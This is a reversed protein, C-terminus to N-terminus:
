QNLFMRSIGPVGTLRDAFEPKLTGNYFGPFISKGGSTTTLLKNMGNKLAGYETDPHDKRFAERANQVLYKDSLGPHQDALYKKYEDVYNAEDLARQKDVYMGSLVKAAQDRPIQPSPIMNATEELAGLSKQDANKTAALRFFGGLKTAATVDGADGPDILYASPDVGISPAITRVLDNARNIMANRWPSLPGSSIAGNAPIKELENTLQNLTGGQSYANAAADSVNTEAAKSADLEGPTPTATTLRNVDGEAETRGANGLFRYAPAAPATGTAAPVAPAGKSYLTAAPQIHYPRGSPTTLTKSPDSAPGLIAIMNPNIAALKSQVTAWEDTGTLSTGAQTKAINQQAQQTPLYAQAGAGLGSALAVGLSRTPATGMAAIGTLLPILNKTKTLDSDGVGKLVSNVKDWISSKPTPATDATPAAPAPATVTAPASPAPTTTDVAVPPASVGVPAPQTVPPPMTDVPPAAAVPPAVARRQRRIQAAPPPVVGTPTAPATQTPTSASAPATPESSSGSPDTWQGITHLFEPIKKELWEGGQVAYSPAGGTDDTGDDTPSGGADYHGRIAGGRKAFALGVDGAAEVAADSGAEEAALEAAASGAAETAAADGAAATGASAAGTGAVGSAAGTDAGAATGGALGSGATPATSASAPVVGGGAPAVGPNPTTVATPKPAFARTATSYASDGLKYTQNGLNAVQALQETNQLGTPNKAAPPASQQKKAAPNADPINLATIATPTGFDSSLEQSYPMGGAAYSGVGNVVGKPLLGGYLNSAGQIALPDPSGGTAYGAVGGRANAAPATTTSAPTAPTTADKYLEEGTKGLAAIQNLNQLPTTDRRIPEAVSLHSVPLNAAPVYSSGGRVANGSQGGYLGGQQSFPAYMQAQASLIAAYDSPTLGSLMPSGGAAHRGRHLFIPDNAPVLGGAYFHGREAADDTAKGYDVTRYGGALGVADPHKKEVKQASLGIQKREDGKYCFRIIKQGDYTEGIPEIDEKLREDSFFGGPQTTTTTSGSLAGTGEAVNALFQSVQFPYSQQQLFQNYLATDQAQQTGQAVQGASLQAQAGALGASQAGTGLEALGASTNAGQTYVQNGINALNSAAAEEAGSSQLQTQQQQQATGLATNYGTNLIGANVNAEALDQQQQLNAAAIGARDGGFAGQMVANGTQGSMAQQNQQNLLADTSSLVQGLYPSEYQQITSASLPAVAASNAGAGAVGTAVANYPQAASQAGTLQGTAAGFYPQAEGAAANTGAIGAQQTDNVPAVFQGSYTSFPTTAAQQASSNASAYNAM